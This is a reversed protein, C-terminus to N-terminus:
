HIQPLNAVPAQLTFTARTRDTAYLTLEYDTDVFVRKMTIPNVEVRAFYMGDHETSIVLPAENTLLDKEPQVSLPLASSFCLDLHTGHKNAVNVTFTDGIVVPEQGPYVYFLQSPGRRVEHSANLAEQVMLKIRTVIPKNTLIQSVSIM